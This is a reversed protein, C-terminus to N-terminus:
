FVSNLLPLHTVTQMYSLLSLSTFLLSGFVRCHGRSPKIKFIACLKCKIRLFKLNRSFDCLMYSGAINLHCVAEFLEEQSLHSVIKFKRFLLQNIRRSTM